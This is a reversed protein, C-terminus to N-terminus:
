EFFSSNPCHFYHHVFQKINQFLEPFFIQQVGDGYPLLCKIPKIGDIALQSM